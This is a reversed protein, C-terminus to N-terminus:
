LVTPHRQSGLHFTQFLFFWVLWLWGSQLPSHQSLCLISDGRVSPWPAKHFLSRPPRGFLQVSGWPQGVLDHRPQLDSRPCQWQHWIRHILALLSVSMCQILIELPSYQFALTEHKQMPTAICEVIKKCCCYSFLWYLLYNAIFLIIFCETLM